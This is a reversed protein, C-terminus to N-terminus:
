HVSAPSATRRANPNTGTPASYSAPMGCQVVPVRARGQDAVAFERLTTEGTANGKPDFPREHFRRQGARDITFVTSCRTGYGDSVIFPSSLLREREIPIGTAPLLADPAPARDALAAFLPATDADGRDADLAARPRANRSLKPWPTDILANSLGHIGDTLRQVFAARNSM